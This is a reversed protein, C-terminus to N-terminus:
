KLLNCGIKSTTATGGGSVTQTVRYTRPLKLNIGVMAAPLSSTQIGPYVMVSTPTTTTIAGSTVYTIWSATASDYVQIGFTTSPSGSAATQVFTCVVGGYALNTLPATTVTGPERVSNTIQVGLDVNYPAPVSPVQAEVRGINAAVVLSLVLALSLAAGIVRQKLTKM